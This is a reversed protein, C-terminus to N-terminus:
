PGHGLGGRGVIEVGQERPEVLGLALGDRVALPRQQDQGARAAALRAHERVPDGPQHAGLAGPGALDERDGEGVLRRLLHAVADLQEDPERM